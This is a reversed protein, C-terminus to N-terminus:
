KKSGMKSILENIIDEKSMNHKQAIEDAMKQIDNLSKQKKNIDQKITKVAADSPQNFLLKFENKKLIELEQICYQISDGIGTMTVWAYARTMATFIKNRQKIDDKNGFVADIGIIYVTGAENGKAKYITSLTIHNSVKFTINENPANLINFTNYGKEKLFHSIVGFYTKANRDDMCVVTIDEPNLGQKLDELIMKIVYDCEEQLTACQRIKIIDDINDLYANKLLPSNEDPRSIIMSSGTISANGGDVNFGLSNWHENSELRQLIKSKQTKYDKNYIGLGLAFAAVLIKRPNRYCKYLVLDQLEDGNDFDIYWNGHEDKGFTEKENQLKTDLINQFDDFAWVVRNNKTLKRCLRYFNIPFDQAEDILTYDYQQKPNIVHLQECSYDFPDKPNKSQAQQLTLPMINNNICGNYYVGELTKGGWAHMIHIKDWNPDKEAFQRYFRTILRKVLDNLNKTWYTYLIEANPNQLHIQAAKMALIITKGSGALGRIRQAGDLTFLAARKQEKDFNYIVSEIKTLIAGKTIPTDLSDKFVRNTPKIIGKSGELTAKLDNYEEKSLKPSNLESLIKKIEQESSVIDFEGFNLEMEQSNGHIYVSPIIDVKLERRGSRLLPSDKFIKAFIIKDVEDLNNQIQQYNIKERESYEVCQFILIGQNSIFILNATVASGTEDPYIPFRHYIAADEFPIQKDMELFINVLAKTSPEKNVLEQNINKEIM